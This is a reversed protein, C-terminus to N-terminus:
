WQPNLMSKTAAYIQKCGGLGMVVGHLVLAYPWYSILLMLLGAQGKTRISLRTAQESAALGNLPDSHGGIHCYGFWVCYADCVVAVALLVLALPRPIRTLWDLFFVLILSYLIAVFLLYNPSIWSSEIGTSAM